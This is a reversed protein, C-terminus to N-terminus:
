YKLAEVNKLSEGNGNEGEHRAQIVRPKHRPDETTHAFRQQEGKRNQDQDKQKTMKQQACM